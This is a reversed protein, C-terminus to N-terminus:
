KKTGMKINMTHPSDSHCNRIVKCQVNALDDRGDGKGMRRGERTIALPNM